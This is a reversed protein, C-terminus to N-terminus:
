SIFRVLAYAAAALMLLHTDTVKGALDM